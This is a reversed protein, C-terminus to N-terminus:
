NWNIADWDLTYPEAPGTYISESPTNYQDQELSMEWITIQTDM